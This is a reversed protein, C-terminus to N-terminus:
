ANFPQLLGLATQRIPAHALAMRLDDTRRAHEDGVYGTARPKGLLELRHYAARAKTRVHSASSRRQATACPVTSMISSGVIPASWPLPSASGGPESVPSIVCAISAAGKLVIQDDAM